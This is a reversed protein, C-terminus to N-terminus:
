IIGLEKAHRLVDDVVEQAINLSNGNCLNSKIVKLMSVALRRYADFGYDEFAKVSVPVIGRMIELWADAYVRIEYQADPDSRLSIFRFINLMNVTTFMRSYTNLPLVGRALERPVEANLLAHYDRFSRACSEYILSAALTNTTTTQGLEGIQRAQRNKSDQRGVHEPLLVYFEDPLVTYRGSTENPSQTRHRHWQRFVFIPAKVEVTCVVSEFPSTHRDRWLRRILKTDNGENKGTRWDADHSVRAARVVSLDSGMHEILRIYGKDLLKIETV